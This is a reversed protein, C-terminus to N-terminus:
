HLGAPCRNRDSLGSIKLWAEGRYSSARSVRVAARGTSAAERRRQQRSSPAPARAARPAAPPSRRDACRVASSRPSAPRRAPSPSRPATGPAPSTEPRSGGILLERWRRSTAVSTAARRPFPAQHLGRGAPPPASQPAPSVVDSTIRRKAAVRLPTRQTAVIFVGPAECFRRAASRGVNGRRSM